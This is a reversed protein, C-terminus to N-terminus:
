HSPRKALNLHYLLLNEDYPIDYKCTEPLDYDFLYYDLAVFECLKQLTENKLDSSHIIFNQKKTDANANRKVLNPDYTLNMFPFAQPMEKLEAVLELKKEILPEGKRELLFNAQPFSHTVCALKAKGKTENANRQASALYKLVEEDDAKKQSKWRLKCEAYGSLFHDIPDRVFTFLKSDGELLFKKKVKTSKTMASVTTGGSKWIHLYNWKTGGIRNGGSTSTRARYLFRKEISRLTHENKWLKEMHGASRSLNYRRLQKITEYYSPHRINSRQFVFPPRESLLKKVVHLFAGMAVGILFRYRFSVGKRSRRRMM